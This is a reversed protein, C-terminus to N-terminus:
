PQPDVVTVARARSVTESTVIDRAQYTVLGTGVINAAFNHGVVAPPTVTLRYADGSPSVLTVEVENPGTVSCQAFISGGWTVTAGDLPLIVTLSLPEGEGEVPEGEGEVPEGEGEVPEGEGEVPEGEGEVPEGEGEVPEGEGEAPEGEQPEGESPEGETPEGEGETPEGEQPEGEGETVEGEQPEGESPEGEAPEGEQPEGETPEGEGETVEGEAPEGESSGDSSITVSVEATEEQEQSDIVRLSVTADDSSSRLLVNFTYSGEEGVQEMVEGGPTTVIIQYPPYGGNITATAQLTEGVLYSPRDTTLTVDGFPTLNVARVPVSAKVETGLSDMARVKIHGDVPADFTHVFQVFGDDVPHVWISGGGTIVVEKKGDYDGSIYLGDPTLFNFGYPPWGGIFKVSMIAQRGVFYEEDAKLEVRFEGDAGPFDLYDEWDTGIADEYWDAFGDGDTDYGIRLFVKRTTVVNEEHEKFEATMEVEALYLEPFIVFPLWRGSHSAIGEEEKQFTLNKSIETTEWQYLSAIFFNVTVNSEEPSDTLDSNRFEEYLPSDLLPRVYYTVKGELLSVTAEEGYREADPRIYIQGDKHLNQDMTVAIDGFNQVMMMFGAQGDENNPRNYMVMSGVMWGEESEKECGAFLVAALAVLVVLLLHLKKM